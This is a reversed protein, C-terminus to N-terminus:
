EDMSIPGATPVLTGQQGPATCPPVTNLYQDPDQVQPDFMCHSDSGPDLDGQQGPASCPPDTTLYQDPDAIPPNFVCHADPGPIFTGQQGPVITGGLVPGTGNYTGGNGQITLQWSEIFGNGASAAGGAVWVTGGGQPPPGLSPPFTNPLPAFVDGDLSGGQGNFCIASTVCSTPFPTENTSYLVTLPDYGTITRGFCTFSLSRTTPRPGCASPWYFKVNTGIGTVPDPGGSIVIRAGDLAFFTYGDGATMSKTIQLVTTSGSVCYIGPAGPVAALTVTTSGAPPTLLTCSGPYHVSPNWATGAPLPTPLPPPPVPWNLPVRDSWDVLTRVCFRQGPKDCEAPDGNPPEPLLAGCRRKDFGLTDLKKPKNGLFTLGGNTAFAGLTIGGNGAGVYSIADCARSMTFAQAGAIGGEEHGPTRCDPLYQDPDGVPPDFDCRSGTGPDLTGTQGPITCPPSTDLYQDPNPVSPDFVCHAGDGTVTGNQDPITCPPDTDLYQDPDAVPPNFVCHPDVPVGAVARAPASSLKTLFWNSVLFTGSETKLKVEVKGWSADYPWTYCHLDTDPLFEGTVADVPREGEPGRDTCPAITIPRNAACNWEKQESYCSVIRELEPRYTEYCDVDGASCTTLADRATQTAALASADASNQVSRKELFMHGGDVVFSFFLALVPTFIAFMVLSQGQESGLKRRALMRM